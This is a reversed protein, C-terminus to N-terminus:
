LSAATPIDPSLAPSSIAEGPSELAAVHFRSSPYSAAGRNASAVHIKPPLAAESPNQGRVEPGAHSRGKQLVLLPAAKSRGQCRWGDYYGPHIRLGATGSSPCKRYCRCCGSGVEGGCSCASFGGIHVLLSSYSRQGQVRVRGDGPVHQVWSAGPVM